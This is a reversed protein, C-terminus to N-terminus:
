KILDFVSFVMGDMGHPISPRIPHLIKLKGAFSYAIPLIGNKAKGLVLSRFDTVNLGVVLAGLLFVGAIGINVGGAAVKVEM